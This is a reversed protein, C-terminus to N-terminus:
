LSPDTKSVALGLLTHSTPGLRGIEVLTRGYRAAKHACGGPSAITPDPVGAQNLLGPWNLAMRLGRPPSRDM